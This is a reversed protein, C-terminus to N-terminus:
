KVNIKIRKLTEGPTTCACSGEQVGSGAVPFGQGVATLLSLPLPPPFERRVAVDTGRVNVGEGVGVSVGVKCGVNVCVDVGVKVCIGSVFVGDGVAVAVGMGAGGFQIGPIPMPMNMNNKIMPKNSGAIWFILTTPRPYDGANGL